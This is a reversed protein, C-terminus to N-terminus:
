TNSWLPARQFGEGKEVFKVLIWGGRHFAGCAAMAAAATVALRRYTVSHARRAPLAMRGRGHGGSGSIRVAWNSQFPWRTSRTPTM